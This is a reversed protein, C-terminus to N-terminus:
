NKALGRECWDKASALDNFFSIRKMGRTVSARWMQRRKEKYPRIEASGGNLNITTRNLRGFLGKYEVWESM